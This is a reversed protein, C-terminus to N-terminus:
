YFLLFGDFQTSVHSLDTVAVGVALASPSLCTGPPCSMRTCLEGPFGSLSEWRWRLAAPHLSKGWSTAIPM